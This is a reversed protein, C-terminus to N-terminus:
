SARPMKASKIKLDPNRDLLLNAKGATEQVALWKALLKKLVKTKVAKEKAYDIMIQFRLRFNLAAASTVDSRISPNNM